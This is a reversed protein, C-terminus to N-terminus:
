GGGGARFSTFYASTAKYARRLGLSGLRYRGYRVTVRREQVARGCLAVRRCVVGFWFQWVTGFVAM